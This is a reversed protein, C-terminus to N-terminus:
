IKKAGSIIGRTAQSLQGATKIMVSYDRARVQEVLKDALREVLNVRDMIITAFIQSRPKIADALYSAYGLAKELDKIMELVELSIIRHLEEPDEVACLFNSYSTLMEVHSEPVVYQNLYSQYSLRADEFILKGVSNMVFISCANSILFSPINKIIEATAKPMSGVTDRGWNFLRRYWAIGETVSPMPMVPFAMKLREEIGIVKEELGKVKNEMTKAESNDPKLLKEYAIWCGVAITAAVFAKRVMDYHKVAAAARKKERMINETSIGRLLDGASSIHTGFGVSLALALKIGQKLKM